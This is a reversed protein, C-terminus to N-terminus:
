FQVGLTISANDRDELSNNLGGEYMTYGISATYMNAYEANLALGIVKQDETFNGAPNPSVGEVDHSFSLVPALSVGAFVDSYDGSVRLRYGWSGETVTEECVQNRNADDACTGSFKISGNEDFDHLYTYGAEAVLAYRNAGLVQDFLKIATVQVQTVDFEKYGGQSAGDEANAVEVGFASDTSALVQADVAAQLAPNAKWSGDDVTVGAQALVLAKVADATLIAGLLQTTNIQVPVDLKHTVEGSVAVGAVNTAFSIGALQQDEPYEIYFYPNAGAAGTLANAAAANTTIGAIAGGAVTGGFETTVAVATAQRPDAGNAAAAEIDAWDSFINAGAQANTGDVVAQGASNKAGTYTQGALSSPAATIFGLENLTAKTGSVLPVRGHVNMAFLGFETDLAESFYRFAVGFQGDADPRKVGGAFQPDRSIPGAVTEVDGCGDPVYDNTSFFTECYSTVTEQHELQYFAEASLNETLGISAFAMNVPILGEKLEAGPRRLASVDFANTQNIGGQIFTSEGWSLVQKGIRVDLPMGGLEFEGYVFADLIQAGSYKAYENAGDDNFSTGDAKSPFDTDNGADANTFVAKNGDELITDYWYKGRVFAGFNKYSVQFDHTGKFVQSFADGKDFNGNGDNDNQGATAGGGIGKMLSPSRDETRWSSGITLQTDLSMEVDGVHFEVGQAQAALILPIAAALYKKRGRTQIVKKSTM